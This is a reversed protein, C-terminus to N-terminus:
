KSRYLLELPIQSMKLIEQLNSIILKKANNEDKNNIKELIEIMTVVQKMSEIAVKNNHAMNNRHEETLKLLFREIINVFSTYIKENVDKFYLDYSSSHQDLNKEKELMEYFSVYSLTKSTNVKLGRCSLIYNIFEMFYQTNRDAKYIDSYIHESALFDDIISKYYIERIAEYKVFLSVYNSNIINDINFGDLRILENIKTICKDKSSKEIAEIFEIQFINNKAFEIDIIKNELFFEYKKDHLCYYCHYRQSINHNVVERDHIKNINNIYAEDDIFLLMRYYNIVNDKSYYKGGVRIFDNDSNNIIKTVEGIEYLYKKHNAKLLRPGNSDSHELLRHLKVIIDYQGNILEGFQNIELLNPCNNKIYDTIKLYEDSNNNKFGKILIITGDIISKYKTEKSDAIKDNYYNDINSTPIYEFISEYININKVYLYQNVDSIIDLYKLFYFITYKSNEGDNMTEFMINLEQIIHMSIYRMIRSYYMSSSYARASYQELEFGEINWSMFKTYENYKQLMEDLTRYNAAAGPINIVLHENMYEFSKDLIVRPYVEGEENESNIKSSINLLYLIKEFVLAKKIYLTPDTYNDEISGIFSIIETLNLNLFLKLIYISIKDETNIYMDRSVKHSYDNSDISNLDKIYRGYLLKYYGRQDPYKFIAMTDEYTLHYILGIDLNEIINSMVIFDDIVIRYTHQELVNKYNRVIEIYLNMMYFFFEKNNGNPYFKNPYFTSSIESAGNNKITEKEVRSKILKNLLNFNKNDNDTFMYNFLECASGYHKSNVDRDFDNLISYILGTDIKEIRRVSFEHGKIKAGGHLFSLHLYFSILLFINIYLKLIMLSSIVCLFTLFYGTCISVLDTRMGVYAIFYFYFLPLIGSAAIMIILTELNIKLYKQVIVNKLSQDFYLSMFKKGFIDVNLFGFIFIYGSILIGIIGIFVNLDLDIFPNNYFLMTLLISFLLIISNYLPKELYLVSM